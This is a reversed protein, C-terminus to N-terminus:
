EEKGFVVVCGYRYAIHPRICVGVITYAENLINTRNNENMLMEIVISYGKRKGFCLNEGYYNIKKKYNHKLRDGITLKLDCSLHGNMGNKCLDNCHEKASEILSSHLSLEGIPTFNSLFQYLFDYKSDLKDIFQSAFLAPNIRVKNILEIVEIEEKTLVNSYLENEMNIKNVNKWLTLENIEKQSLTGCQGEIAILLEGEPKVSIMDGNAYLILQGQSDSKWITKDSIPFPKGGLVKGMLQGTNINNYNLSPYGNCDTFGYEPYFSWKGIVEFKVTQNINILLPLFTPESDAHFTFKIISQSSDNSKTISLNEEKMLFNSTELSQNDIEQTTLHNRSKVLIQSTKKTKPFSICNGM